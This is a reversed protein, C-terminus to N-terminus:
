LKKITKVDVETFRPTSRDIEGTIEVVDKESVSITGWVKADIELTISGTNDSFEYKEDGLSKVINGKLVVPSDDRLKKAEAVSVAAATPGTFGGQQASVSLVLLAMMCFALIFNKM